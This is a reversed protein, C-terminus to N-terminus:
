SGDNANENKAIEGGGEDESKRRIEYRSRQRRRNIRWQM